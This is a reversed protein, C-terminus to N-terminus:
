VEKFLKNQGKRKWIWKLCGSYNWFVAGIIGFLNSILYRIGFFETLTWLIIVNITFGVIYVLNCKLARMMTTSVSSHRLDRFTWSDNLTFNSLISTEIGIVASILYFLGFLETLIWLLGENILIGMTGVVCFKVFRLLGFKNSLRLLFTKEIFFFWRLIDSAKLKSKGCARNLFTIPVEKIRFGHDKTTLISAIAWEYRDCHVNRVAAEACKRSFIRFYTTHEQLGTRFLLRCLFNATYSVVRRFFDCGVIRGGKVYRSGQILDANETESLLHPVDKPNHSLDADMTVIYESDAFSLAIQLGDRIASGIGLKEPRRHIIINGYRWNLKEAVEATGDPSNDDVVIVKFDGKQMNNELAEMLKPLNEAENYTPIVMCVKSM